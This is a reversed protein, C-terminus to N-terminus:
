DVFSGTACGFTPNKPMGELYNLLPPPQLKRELLFVAAALRNNVEKPLENADMKIYDGNMKNVNLEHVEIQGKFFELLHEKRTAAPLAYFAEMIKDERRHKVLESKLIKAVSIDQQLSPTEEWFRIAGDFDVALLKLFVEKKAQDRAVGPAFLSYANKLHTVFTGTEETPIGYTTQLIALRLLRLKQDDDAASGLLKLLELSVFRNSILFIADPDPSAIGFASIISHTVTSRKDPASRVFIGAGRGKRVECAVHMLEWTTSEDESRRLVTALNETEPEFTERIKKLDCDAAALALGIIKAIYHGNKVQASHRASYTRVGLRVLLGDDKDPPFQKAAESYKEFAVDLKARTFWDIEPVNDSLCQYVSNFWKKECASADLKDLYAAGKGEAMKAVISVAARPIKKSAKVAIRLLDQDDINQYLGALQRMMFSYDSTQAVNKELLEAAKKYNKKELYAQSILLAVSARTKEPLQDQISMATEIDGFKLATYFLNRFYIEGAKNGAKMMEPLAALMHRHKYPQDWFLKGDVLVAQDQRAANFVASGFVDYLGAAEATKIALAYDARSIAISINITEIENAPCGSAKKFSQAAEANQHELLRQYVAGCYKIIKEEPNKTKRSLRSFADM